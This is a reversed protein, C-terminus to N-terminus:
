QLGAWCMEAGNTELLSQTPRLAFGKKPSGPLKKAVQLSLFLTNIYESIM